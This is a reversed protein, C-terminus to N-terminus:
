KNIQRLVSKPTFHASDSTVIHIILLDHELKDSLLM